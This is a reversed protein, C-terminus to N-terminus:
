AALEEDDTDTDEFGNGGEERAIQRLKAAFGGLEDHCSALDALADVTESLWERTTAPSDTPTAQIRAIVGLLEGVFM